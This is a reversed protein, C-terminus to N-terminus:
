VRAFLACVCLAFVAVARFRHRRCPAVARHWVPGGDLAAARVAEALEIGLEIM